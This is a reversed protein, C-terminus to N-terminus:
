KNLSQYEKIAQSLEETRQYLSFINGTKIEKAMHIYRFGKFRLFNSLNKNYCYFFDEKNM